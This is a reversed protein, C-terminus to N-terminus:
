LPVPRHILKMPRHSNTHCHATALGEATCTRRSLHVLYSSYPEYVNIYKCNAYRAKDTALDLRQEPLGPTYGM